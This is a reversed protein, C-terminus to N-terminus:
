GRRRFVLVSLTFVLLLIELLTLVSYGSFLALQGGIDALLNEFEYSLGERIIKMNLTKYYINVRLSEERMEAVTMNYDVVSVLNPFRSFSIDTSFVIEKCPPRCLQQCSIKGKLYQKRVMNVCSTSNTKCISTTTDLRPFFLRHCKCQKIIEEAFCKKACLDADYKVTRKQGQNYVNQTSEKICTGNRFPDIREVYKKMVPIDYSFGPALSIGKEFPQYHTGQYGIYLRIGADSTLNEFYQQQNIKLILEISELRGARAAREIHNVSGNQFYYDNFAFCSGYRPHWYLDWLNESTCDKTQFLKCKAFLDEFNYGYKFIKRGIEAELEAILTHDVSQINNGTINNIEQLLLPVKDRKVMNENCVVVVPYKPAHEYVISETTSVPKSIYRTVLPRVHVFILIHCTLISLIWFIKLLFHEAVIVQGFGHATTNDAFRFLIKRVSREQKGEKQFDCQDKEDNIKKLPYDM